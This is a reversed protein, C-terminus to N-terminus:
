GGGGGTRGGMVLGKKAKKKKNKKKKSKKPGEDWGLEALDLVGEPVPADFDVKERAGWAPHKRPDKVFARVETTQPSLAGNSITYAALAATAAARTSAISREPPPSTLSTLRPLSLTCSCSCSRM